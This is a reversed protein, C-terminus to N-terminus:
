RKAIALIPEAIWEWIKRREQVIDAELTMAPKLDQIKGYALVGQQELKVKVRYLGEAGGYGSTNRSANSLITSALSPPLENPAFPTKSIDGVIGKYLGFKEYPFAHFRILVTKGPSIFGATRSPVYLQAELLSKGSSSPILMALTQGTNVVQGHQCIITAVIGTEPATIFNSKRDNNEVIQQELNALSGEFQAQESGITRALTRDENALDQINEQIQLRDRKLSSLHSVADIMDGEKQQLQLGSIFGDTQLTKYKSMSSQALYVRREALTIEQQIQSMESELTKIKKQISDRKESLNLLTLRLEAQLSIKRSSLQQAVLASVEGHDSQRETSIEFLPQGAKVQEGENVLFKMVVGSSLAFVGINGGVPVTIGTVRDKRTVSGCTVYIIFLFIILLSIATALWGSIPQSLRIAGRSLQNQSSTVEPRFFFIEQKKQHM